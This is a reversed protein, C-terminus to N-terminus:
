LMSHSTMWLAMLAAVLYIAVEVQYVAQYVEDIEPTRRAEM